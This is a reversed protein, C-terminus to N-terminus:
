ADRGEGASVKGAGPNLRLYSLSLYIASTLRSPTTTPVYLLAHLPRIPPHPPGRPAQNTPEAPRGPTLRAEPKSLESRCAAVAWRRALGLGM